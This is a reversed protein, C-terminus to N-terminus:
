PTLKSVFELIRSQAKKAFLEPTFVSANARIMYVAEVARDYSRGAGCGPALPCNWDILDSNYFAGVRWLQPRGDRDPQYTDCFWFNVKEPNTGLFFNPLMPVRIMARRNNQCANVFRSRTEVLEFDKDYVALSIREENENTVLATDTALEIHNHALRFENRTKYADRTPTSHCYLLAQGAPSMSVLGRDWSDTCTHNGLYYPDSEVMIRYYSLVGTTKSTSYETVHQGAPVNVQYADGVQLTNGLAFNALRTNPPLAVKFTASVDGTQIKVGDVTLTASVTVKYTTGDKLGAVVFPSVTCPLATTADNNRCQYQADSATVAVGNADVIAFNLEVKESSVPKGDLPLGTVTTAFESTTVTPKAEEKNKDSGSGKKSMSGCATLAMAGTITALLTLSKLKLKM